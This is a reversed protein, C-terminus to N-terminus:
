RQKDNLNDFGGLFVSFWFGGKKALALSSYFHQSWACDISEKPLDLIGLFVQNLFQAVYLTVGPV